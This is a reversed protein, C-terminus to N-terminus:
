EASFSILEAPVTGNVTLDYIGCSGAAGVAYYSDIYVYYTGPTYPQAAIVEPGAGIGIADQSNVVCTNGDGCTSLIFLALDGTSGTLDMSFDVNNGTGLTLEYIVDQGGYPFPLTCTGAYTTLTNTFGACTDGTDNWPLPETIFAGPPCGDGGVEVPPAPVGVFGPDSRNAADAPVIAVIATLMVLTGFLATRKM